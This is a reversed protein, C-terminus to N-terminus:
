AARAEQLSPAGPLLASSLGAFVDPYTARLEDMPIGAGVCLALMLSDADDLDMSHICARALDNYREPKWAELLPSSPRLIVVPPWGEEFQTATLDVLVRRAPPGVLLWFHGIRQGDLREYAGLVLEVQWGNGELVDYLVSSVVACQM